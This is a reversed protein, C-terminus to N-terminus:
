FMIRLAFQLVRPMHAGTSFLFNTTSVYPNVGNWETHNFVNFAEARFQIQIKETPKFIKFVSMDFNTRHPNNLSNRGSDGFTLGQTQAYAACNFLPVGKTSAALPPCNPSEQPDGIRDAYSGIGTTGDAVGASDGYVGNVVSFPTGSQATMIGAWQWGGLFTHALGKARFSPLDYTWAVTLIHRQDYNSSAYNQHVNYSNVFNSDTTDSSDDLSHSYTYALDLTLPGSTKRLSFQLANYNSNAIPEVRQISSM